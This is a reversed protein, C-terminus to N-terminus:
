CSVPSRVSAYGCPTKAIKEISELADLGLQLYTHDGTARFLYMASEILESVFIYVCTQTSHIFAWKAVPIISSYIDVTCHVQMEQWNDNCPFFQKETIINQTHKGPEKPYHATESFMFSFIAQHCSLHASRTEPPIGGEQGSHFRSPHQLVWSTRWITEMCFLLKPVNECCQRPEGPSVSFCLIGTLNFNLVIYHQLTSKKITGVQLGPWFAELSQFVPMSVTGKHM